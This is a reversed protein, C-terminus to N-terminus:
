KIYHDKLHWEVEIPLGDAWPSSQTMLDEIVKIEEPTINEPVEFVLEDHVDMVIPYQPVEKVCANAADRLIDRGIAQIENECLKGGYYSTSNGGRQTRAKLGNAFNVDFYDLRRNSPLRLQFQRRDGRAAASMRTQLSKWHDTIERNSSRYETVTKYCTAIDLSLKCLKWAMVQFKPGGCGYGLALVRAKALSYLKPDKDKLKQKPDHEYGMTAIAHVEYVSLGSRILDLVRRMECIWALIRAEIQCYDVILFKMGPRPVFLHRLMIGFREDRYINQMNFGGDGSNRGTHAGFYKLTYKYIGGVARNRLHLLKARFGQGQRWVKLARIWPYKEGYLAEWEQADVSDEAFSTPCPIGEKACEKAIESILLPTKSRKGGWEWPILNGAEWLIGNMHTIANDLAEEDIAVGRRGKERNFRSFQQESEPWKHGFYKWLLFTGEADQIGAERIEEQETATFDNWSKGKATGRYAKSIGSYQLLQKMAGKLSRPGSFYVSLDATCSWKAPQADEPIVGKLTNVLWDTEDYRANHAVAHCGKVQDWPVDDFWPPGSWELTVNGDDDESYLSILYLEADPHNLYGDVGLPNISVIDDYYNELDIGITRM